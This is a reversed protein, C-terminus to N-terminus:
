SLASNQNLMMRVLTMEDFLNIQQIPLHKRKVKKRDTAHKQFITSLEQQEPISSVMETTSVHIFQERTRKQPSSKPSPLKKEEPKVNVRKTVIKQDSVNTNIRKETKINKAETKRLPPTKNVEMKTQIDKVESLKQQQSKTFFSIKITLFTEHIDNLWEPITLQLRLFIYLTTFPLNNVPFDLTREVFKCLSDDEEQDLQHTFLHAVQLFMRCFRERKAPLAPDNNGLIAKLSECLLFLIIHMQYRAVHKAHVIRHEETNKRTTALQKMYQILLPRESSHFDRLVDTLTQVAREIDCTDVQKVDCLEIIENMFQTTNVGYYFEPHLGRQSVVVMTHFQSISTYSDKAITINDLYKQIQEVIERHLTKKSSSSSSPKVEECKGNCSAMIVLLLLGRTQEHTIINHCYV